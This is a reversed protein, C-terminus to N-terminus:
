HKITKENNKPMDTTYNNGTPVNQEQYFNTIATEIVNKMNDALAAVSYDEQVRKMATKAIQVRKNPDIILQELTLFWENQGSVVFGDVEHRIVDLYNRTRSVVSPVGLSAAEFWKLESKCDNIDDELLM